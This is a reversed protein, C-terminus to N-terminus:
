SMCFFYFLILWLSFELVQWSYLIGKVSAYALKRDEPTFHKEAKNERKEVKGEWGILYNPSTEDLICVQM